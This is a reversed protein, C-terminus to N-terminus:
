DSFRRLNKSLKKAFKKFQSLAEDYNDTKLMDALSYGDWFYVKYFSDTIKLEISAPDLNKNSNEYISVNNDDIDCSTNNLEAFFSKHLNIFRIKDKNLSTKIM